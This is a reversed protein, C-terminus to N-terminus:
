SMEKLEALRYLMTVLEERTVSDGYRLGGEDGAIIGKAEAWQRATESWKAPEYDKKMYARVREKFYSWDIGDRIYKGDILIRPCCKGSWDYHRLIDSETLGYEKAKIATLEAAREVTRKRDGSECLEISISHRNGETVSCHWAEECDPIAQIIESDDVCYHWSASRTNQPNDLWDRENKATSETNATSHITIGTKKYSGGSRLRSNEKLICKKIDM